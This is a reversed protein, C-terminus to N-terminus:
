DLFKEQSQHKVIDEKLIVCTLKMHQHDRKKTRKKQLQIKVKCDICLERVWGLHTSQPIDCSVIPHQIICRKHSNIHSFHMLKKRLEDKLHHTLKEYHNYLPKLLFYKINKNEKQTMGRLLKENKTNMISFLYCKDIEM